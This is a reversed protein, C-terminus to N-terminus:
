RDVIAKVAQERKDETGGRPVYISGMMSALQGMIPAGRFGADLVFSIQYWIYLTHADIWSCHNCVITSPRKEGEKDYDPGLYQSYDVKKVIRKKKM